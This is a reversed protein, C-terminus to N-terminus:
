AFIENLEDGWAILGDEDWPEEWQSRPSLLQGSSNYERGCQCTNTFDELKVIGNCECRGLAPEWYSYSYDRVGQPTVEYTGDLCAALSEQATLATKDLIVVGEKSCPFSFGAGPMDKWEFSLAFEARKIRQGKRIIQM